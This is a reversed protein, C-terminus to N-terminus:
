EESGLFYQKRRLLTQTQAELLVKVLQRLKWVASFLCFLCFYYMVELDDFQGPLPLFNVTPRLSWLFWYFVCFASVILHWIKPSAISKVAPELHVGPKKRGSTTSCGGPTQHQVACLEPKHEQKSLLPKLWNLRGMAGCIRMWEAYSGEM